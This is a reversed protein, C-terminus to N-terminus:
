ATSLVEKAQYPTIESLSVSLSGAVWRRDTQADANRHTRSM